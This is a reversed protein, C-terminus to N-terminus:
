PLIEMMEEGLLGKHYRIAALANDRSCQFRYLDVSREQGDEKQTIQRHEVEYLGVIVKSQRRFLRRLLTELTMYDVPSGKFKLQWMEALRPLLDLNFWWHWIATNQIHYSLSDLFCIEDKDLGPTIPLSDLFAQLLKRKEDTLCTKASEM